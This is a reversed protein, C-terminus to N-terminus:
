EHSNDNLTKAASQGIESLKIVNVNTTELWTTTLPVILNNWCNETNEDNNKLLTVRMTNLFNHLKIHQSRTIVVLNDINNNTPNCDLHHVVEDTSLKKNLVSEAIRRHRWCYHGGHAPEYNNTANSSNLKTFKYYCEKSCFPQNKRFGNFAKSCIKCISPYTTRVFTSSKYRDRAQQRRREAYHVSCYRRGKVRENECNEVICQM